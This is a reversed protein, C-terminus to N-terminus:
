CLRLLNGCLVYFTFFLILQQPFGTFNIEGILIMGKLGLEPFLKDNLSLPFIMPAAFYDLCNLYICLFMYIDDINFLFENLQIIKGM